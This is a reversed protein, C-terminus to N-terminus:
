HRSSLLRFRRPTTGLFYHADRLFHSVDHYSPDIVTYSNHGARYDVLALSRLFRARRLLIKTPAGFHRLALARLRAEALRRLVGPVEDYLEFHQCAAWERYIERACADLTEGRGGMQEIIHRTYGIYIEDDYATDDAGDLLRGASVVAEDFRAPDVDMGHRACFAQYGPGQFTPGPYILTFDVDFLVAHIRRPGM